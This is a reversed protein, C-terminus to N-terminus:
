TDNNRCKLTVDHRSHSGCPWDAKQPHKPNAGRIKASYIQNYYTSLYTHYISGTLVHQRDLHPLKKETHRGKPLTAIYNITGVLASRLTLPSIILLCLIFGDMVFLFSHDIVKDEPNICSIGKRIEKSSEKLVDKM